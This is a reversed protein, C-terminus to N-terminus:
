ACPTSSTWLTSGGSTKLIAVGSNQLTLEAGSHGPAGATWIPNSQTDYVTLVGSSAVRAYLSRGEATCSNWLMAGAADRIVLDGSPELRLRYLGNASVLGQTPVLTYPWALRDAVPPPSVAMNGRAIRNDADDSLYASVTADGVARATTAGVLRGNADYLYTQANQATASFACGSLVAALLWRRSTM